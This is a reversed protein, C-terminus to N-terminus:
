RVDHQVDPGARALPQAVQGPRETMTQPDIRIGFHHSQCALVRRRAIEAEPNATFPELRYWLGEVHDDVPMRWEVQARHRRVELGATIEDRLLDALPIHGEHLRGQALRHAGGHDLPLRERGAAQPQQGDHFVVDLVHNTIDPRQDEPEVGEVKNVGIHVPLGGQGAGRHQVPDQGPVHVFAPEHRVLVPVQSDRL